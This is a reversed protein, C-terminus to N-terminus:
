RLILRDGRGGAREGRPVHDRSPLHRSRVRCSPPWGFGAPGDTRPTLNRHEYFVRAVSVSDGCTAVGVGGLLHALARSSTQGNQYGNEPMLTSPKGRKASSRKLSVVRVRPRVKSLSSSRADLRASSPRALELSMRWSTQLCLRDSSSHRRTPWRYSADLLGRCGNEIGIAEIGRMAASRFAGVIAANKGPADGGSHTSRSASGQSALTVQGM